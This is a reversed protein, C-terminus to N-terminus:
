IALVGELVFKQLLLSQEGPDSTINPIHKELITSYRTTTLEPVIDVLNLVIGVLRLLNGMSSARLDIDRLVPGERQAKDLFTCYLIPELFWERNTPFSKIGVRELRLENNRLTWRRPLAEM